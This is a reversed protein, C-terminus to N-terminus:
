LTSWHVLFLVYIHFTLKIMFSFTLVQFSSSTMWTIEFHVCTFNLASIILNFIILTKCNWFVNIKRWIHFNLTGWRTRHCKRTFISELKTLRDGDWKTFRDMKITWINDLQRVYLCCWALSPTGLCWHFLHCNNSLIALMVKKWLNVIMQNQNQNPSNCPIMKYSVLYQNWDVNNKTYKDNWSM